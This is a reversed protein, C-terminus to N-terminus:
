IIYEQPAKFTRLCTKDGIDCSPETNADLRDIKTSPIRSESVSAFSGDAEEYVITGFPFGSVSITHEKLAEHSVSFAILPKGCIGCRQLVICYRQPNHPDSVRRGDSEINFFPGAIHSIPFPGGYPRLEGRYGEPIIM